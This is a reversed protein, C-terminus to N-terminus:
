AKRARLAGAFAGGLASFALYMLTFIALSALLIGARIEPNDFSAALPAVSAADKGAGQLMAFKAQAFMANFQGDVRASDHRVYRELLLQVTNVSSMGLMVFLGTLAGLKSGFDMTIRTGTARSAYIGLAVIPASVAWLLGLLGAPAAVAGVLAFVLAIGGALAACQVAIRWDPRTPDPPPAAPTSSASPTPFEASALQAPGAIAGAREQAAREALEESLKVQPMGCHRCYTLAGDEDDEVAFRCRPCLHQM